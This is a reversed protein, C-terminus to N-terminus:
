TSAAPAAPGFGPANTTRGYQDACRRWSAFRRRCTLPGCPAAIEEVLDTLEKAGMSPPSPVIEERYRPGSSPSGHNGAAPTGRAQPAGHTGPDPGCPKAQLHVIAAQRTGGPTIIMDGDSM